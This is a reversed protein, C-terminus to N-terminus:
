SSVQAFQNSVMTTIQRGITVSVLGEFLNVLSHVMDNQQVWLTFSTSNQNQNQNKKELEISPFQALPM